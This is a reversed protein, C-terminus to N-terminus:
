FNIIRAKELIIIGGCVRYGPFMKRAALLYIEIQQRYKEEYSGTLKYDYVHVRNDRVIIRDIVGHIIQNNNEIVFPLEAYSGPVPLIIQLIERRSLLLSIIKQLYELWSKKGRWLSKTYYFALRQSVFPEEAPIIGKSIEALVRHLLEGQQLRSFSRVELETASYSTVQPLFSKKEARVPITKDEVPLSFSQPTGAPYDKELKKTMAVWLSKPRDLGSLFLYQSARTVAVYFIRYEEATLCETFFKKQSTTAERKLVFSYGTSTSVNKEYMLPSHDTVAGDELNIVFVAPFELGKAGHITLLRVADEDESFIDAKPETVIHCAKRLKQANRFFSAASQGELLSLLKEVNAEQQTSLNERFNIEKLIEEMLEAPPLFSLRQRWFDVKEKSLHFRSHALNWIAHSDSGDSLAFILSLLFRIEPEQYFGIGGVVLYPIGSQMLIRELVPLSPGRRRMLIAIDRFSIRRRTGNRHYVTKGRAILEQIRSSVWKFEEEKQSGEPLIKIEVASDEPSFFREQNPLLTQTNWPVISGFLRNIFGIVYPCSRQSISLQKREARPSFFSLALDFVTSEAGRFSYISQKRDGVVLLGYSQGSEARAGQGSVWEETLSKIIEWQLINTDQFEDVLLFLIHEDFDELVVLSSPNNKLLEYSLCELDNFDLYSNESKLQWHVSRVTQYISALQSTLPAPQPKGLFVYPHTRHLQQCFRMISSVSLDKTLSLFRADTRPQNLYAALSEEFLRDSESEDIISFFPDVKIHHSFRQLLFRCFSHITSVRLRLLANELELYEWAGLNKSVESIRKLIRQKMEIASKDSFTIAMIRLISRALNKKELLSLFYETLYHTKGTGASAEIVTVQFKSLM